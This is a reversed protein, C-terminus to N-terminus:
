APQQFLGAVKGLRALMVDPSAIQITERDAAPAIQHLHITVDRRPVVDDQHVARFDEAGTAAVADEVVRDNVVSMMRRKVAMQLQRLRDDILEVLSARKAQLFLARTGRANVRDFASGPKRNVRPEPGADAGLRTGIVLMESRGTVIGRLTDGPLMAELLGRRQDPITKSLGILQSDGADTQRGRGGPAPVPPDHRRGRSGPRRRRVIADGHDIGTLAHRLEVCKVAEGRFKM